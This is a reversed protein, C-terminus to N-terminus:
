IFVQRNKRNRAIIGFNIDTGSNGRASSLVYENKNDFWFIM